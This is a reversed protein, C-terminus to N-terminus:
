HPTKIMANPNRLGTDDKFPNGQEPCPSHRGEVIWETCAHPVGAIGYGINILFKVHQHGGRGITGVNGTVGSRAVTRTFRTGTLTIPSVNEKCGDVQVFITTWIHGHPLDIHAIGDGTGQLAKVISSPPTPCTLTTTAVLKVTKANLRGM